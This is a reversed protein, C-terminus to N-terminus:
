RRPQQTGDRRMPGAWGSWVTIASDGYGCESLASAIKAPSEGNRTLALLRRGPAAHGVISAEPATHLSICRVKELPWRLAAAALSLASPAPFVAVERAPLARLLTTAVGHYLPDGSALVTTPEGRRDVIADIGASLPSPWPKRHADQVGAAELMRAAGFVAPADLVGDPATPALRGGPLCGVINLWPEAGAASM